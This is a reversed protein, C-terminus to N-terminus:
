EGYQGQPEQPNQPKKLGAIRFYHLVRESVRDGQRYARLAREDGDLLMLLAPSSVRWPGGAIRRGIRHAVCWNQVTRESVGAKKAASAVTVAEARDFPRLVHDEDDVM